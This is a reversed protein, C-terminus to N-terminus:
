FDRNGKDFILVVRTMLSLLSKLYGAKKYFM